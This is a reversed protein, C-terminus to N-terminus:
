LLGEGGTARRVTGTERVADLVFGAIRSLHVEDAGDV